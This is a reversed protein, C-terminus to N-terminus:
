RHRRHDTRDAHQFDAAPRRINPPTAIFAHEATRRKPAAMRRNAYPDAGHLATLAEWPVSALDDPAVDLLRALELLTHLAWTRRDADTLRNGTVAEDLHFTWGSNAADPELWAELSGKGGLYLRQQGAQNHTLTVIM